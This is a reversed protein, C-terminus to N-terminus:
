FFGADHKETSADLDESETDMEDLADSIAVAESSLTVEKDTSDSVDTKRGGICSAIVWALNWIRYVESIGHRPQTTFEPIPKFKLKPTQCPLLTFPIPETLSQKKGIGEVELSSVM